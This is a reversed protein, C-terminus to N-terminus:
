CMDCGDRDHRSRTRKSREGTPRASGVSFTASSMYLPTSFDVNFQIYQPDPGSGDDDGSGSIYVDQDWGMGSKSSMRLSGGDELQISKGEGMILGVEGDDDVLSM